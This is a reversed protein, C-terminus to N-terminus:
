RAGALTLMHRFQRNLTRVLKATEEVDLHEPEGRLFVDLSWGHQESHALGTSVPGSATLDTHCTEETDHDAICGPLVCDYATEALRALRGREAAQTLGAQVGLNFAAMTRDTANDAPTAVTNM